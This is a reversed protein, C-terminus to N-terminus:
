LMSDLKVIALSCNDGQGQARSRALRLLHDAAQHPALVKLIMGLEDDDFYHWLGDSCLLFCEGVAPAIATSRTILPPKQTGLAHTLINAFQHTHAAQASIKGSTILQEVYSHDTTRELLQGNFFHYLRSDGVHIWDAREPQLLLTVITSHPEQESSLGSLKIVTHSENVITNFLEDISETDPVFDAFVSEATRMVQQAAMAGGSKGGVGDAVVFLASDALRRCTFIGVRDQQELRDGIHQGTCASLKFRPKEM